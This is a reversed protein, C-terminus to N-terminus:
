NPKDLIKKKVPPAATKTTVRNKLNDTKKGVVQKKNVQASSDYPKIYKAFVFAKKGKYDVKAWNGIFLYVSVVDNKYFKGLVRASSNARERVNLTAISIYQKVKVPQVQPTKKSKPISFNISKFGDVVYYAAVAIHNRASYVGFGCAGLFLLLISNFVLRRMRRKMLERKFIWMFPSEVRESDKGKSIVSFYRVKSFKSAINGILDTESNSNIFEKVNTNIPESGLKLEDEVLDAKSIVFATEKAVKDKVGVGFSKELSTVLIDYTDDIDVIENANIQNSKRIMEAYNERMITFSFPDIIFILANFYNYFMHREVDTSKQYTEGAADYIYFSYKRKGKILNFNFAVLTGKQTPQLKEGRNLKSIENKHIVESSKEISFKYNKMKAYLEIQNVLSHMYTTKGANRAGVIPIIIPRGEKTPIPNKCSPCTAYLKNRGNIFSTPIKHGCECTRKFIGYSNPWLRDHGVNCNPCHYVPLKHKQYCGQNPCAAFIKEKFRYFADIAWVLSFMLYVLLFFLFLITIHIVSLVLFLSTGFVVVCIGAAWYYISKFAGLGFEFSYGGEAFYDQAKELNLRWADAITNALDRYGKGFFYSKIAPQKSRKFMIRGKEKLM